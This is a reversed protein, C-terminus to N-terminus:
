PGQYRRLLAGNPRHGLKKQHPLQVDAKRKILLDQLKTRDQTNIDEPGGAPLFKHRVIRQEDKFYTTM